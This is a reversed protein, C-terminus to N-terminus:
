INNALIILRCSLPKLSVADKLIVPCDELKIQGSM